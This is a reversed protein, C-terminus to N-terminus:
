CVTRNLKVIWKPCFSFKSVHFAFYHQCRPSWIRLLGWNQSHQMINKSWDYLFFIIQHIIVPLSMDSNNLFMMVKKELMLNICWKVTGLNATLWDFAAHVSKVDQSILDGIHDSKHGLYRMTGKKIRKPLMDLESKAKGHTNQSSQM